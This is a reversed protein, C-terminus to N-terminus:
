ELPIIEGSGLVHQDIKPNGYYQVIGSGAIDANLDQLAHITAIGSGRISIITKESILKKGQFQSGGAISIDQAKTQGEIKLNGSGSLNSKLLNNKIKLNTDGAGQLNLKLIDGTLKGRSELVINGATNIETLESVTVYYHIPLDVSHENQHSTISLCNKKVTSHILPLMQKTTEITLSSENGQKLYLHGTGSVHICNFSDVTRKEKILKEKAFVATSALCVCMIIMTRKM